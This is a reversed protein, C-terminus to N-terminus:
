DIFDEQNEQWIEIKEEIADRIFQSLNTCRQDIMANRYREYDEESIRLSVIRTKEIAM